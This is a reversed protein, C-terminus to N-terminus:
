QAEGCIPALLEWLAKGFEREQERRDTIRLYLPIPPCFSTGDISHTLLLSPKDSIWSGDAQRMYGIM